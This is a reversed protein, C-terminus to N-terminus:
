LLRPLLKRKMISIFSYPWADSGDKKVPLAWAAKGHQLLKQFM